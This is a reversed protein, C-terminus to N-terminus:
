WIWQRTPKRLGSGTLCNTGYAHGSLQEGEGLIVIAQMLRGNALTTGEMPKIATQDNCGSRYKGGAKTTSNLEM